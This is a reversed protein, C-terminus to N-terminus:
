IDTSFEFVQILQDHVKREKRDSYGILCFQGCFSKMASVNMMKLDAFGNIQRLSSTMSKREKFSSHWIMLLQGCTNELAFLIMLKIM